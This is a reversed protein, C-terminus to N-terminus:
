DAYRRIDPDSSAEKVIRRVSELVGSSGQPLRSRIVSTIANALQHKSTSREIGRASVFRIDFFLSRTPKNEEQVTSSLPKPLKYILTGSPKKSPVPVEIVYAFHRSGNGDKLGPSLPAQRNADVFRPRLGVPAPAIVPLPRDPTPVAKMDICYFVTKQVGKLRALATRINKQLAEALFATRKEKHVISARSAVRVYADPLELKLHGGDTLPTRLVWTKGDSNLPASAFGKEIAGRCRYTKAEATDASAISASIAAALLLKRM